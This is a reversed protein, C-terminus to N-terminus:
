LNMQKVDELSLMLAQAIQEDTLGFQRLRDITQSPAQDSAVPYAGPCSNIYGVNVAANKNNYTNKHALTINFNIQRELVSELNSKRVPEGFVDSLIHLLEHSVKKVHKPSYGNTEAVEVYKQHNLIGKLIKIQLDNLHKGTNNYVSEDVFQLLQSIEMIPLIFNKEPNYCVKALKEWSKGVKALKQWSKGVKVLKEWSEIEIKCCNEIGRFLARDEGYSIKAKL